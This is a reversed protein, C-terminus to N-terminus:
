IKKINKLIMVTGSLSSMYLMNKTKSSKLLGYNVL